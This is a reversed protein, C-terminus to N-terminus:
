VKIDEIHWKPSVTEGDIGPGVVTTISKNPLIYREAVRHIDLLSTDLLQERRVQRM